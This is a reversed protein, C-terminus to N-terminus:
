TQSWLYLHCSCCLTAHRRAWYQRYSDVAFASFFAWCLGGYGNMSKRLQWTKRSQRCLFHASDGSEDLVSLTSFQVFVWFLTSRTQRSASLESMQSSCRHCLHTEWACLLEQCDIVGYEPWDLCTGSQGSFRPSETEARMYKRHTAAHCPDLYVNM